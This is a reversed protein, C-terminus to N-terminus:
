AQARRRPWFPKKERGQKGEESDAGARTDALVLAIIRECHRRWLAFSIYGGLSLGVVTANEIRLHDLLAAVDDAYQDLSAAGSGRATSGLGRLDPAIVRHHPSFAVIQREWIASHLPFAHIFLIPSGTGEDRYAIDIGNIPATKM